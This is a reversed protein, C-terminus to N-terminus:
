SRKKKAKKKIKPIVKWTNEKQHVFTYAPNKIGDCITFYITKADSRHVQIKSRSTANIFMDPLPVDPIKQILTEKAALPGEFSYTHTGDSFRIHNIGRAFHWIRQRNSDPFLNGGRMEFINCM